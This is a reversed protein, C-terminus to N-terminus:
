SYCDRRCINQCFAHLKLCSHRFSVSIKIWPIMKSVCLQWSTFLSSFDTTHIYSEVFLCNMKNQGGYVALSSRQALIIGCSHQHSQTNIAPKCWWRRTPRMNWFTAKVLQWVTKVLTCIMQLCLFLHWCCSRGVKPEETTIHFSQIRPWSQHFLFLTVM